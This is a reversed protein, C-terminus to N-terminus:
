RTLYAGPRFDGASWAASTSSAGSVWFRASLEVPVAFALPPQNGAAGPGFAQSPAWECGLPHLILASGAYAQVTGDAGIRFGGDLMASVEVPALQPYGDPRLAPNAAPDDGRAAVVEALMALVDDNPNALRPDPPSSWPGAGVHCAQRNQAAMVLKDADLRNGHADRVTLRIHPWVPQDPDVGRHENLPMPDTDGMFGIVQGARVSRGVQALVALGLAAHGAGDTTGPSDDNFGAYHYTRGAPDTITVSIAEAVADGRSVATVVGDAV